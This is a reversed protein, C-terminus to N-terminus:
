DEVRSAIEPAVEIIREDDTILATGREEALTVYAADYATLGRATWAAVGALDPRGIAFDLEELSVALDTLRDESWSWRRGAVNIIELFLLRPVTVLIEGRRYRDRLARARGAGPENKPSFWQVVISADLVIEIM